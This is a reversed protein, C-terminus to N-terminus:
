KELACNVKTFLSILCIVWVISLITVAGTGLGPVLYPSSNVWTPVPNGAATSWSGILGPIIFVIVIPIIVLLYYAHIKINLSSGQNM